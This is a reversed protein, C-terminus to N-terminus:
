PISYCGKTMVNRGGKSGLLALRLENESGGQNTEYNISQEWGLVGTKEGEKAEARVSAWKERRRRKRRRIRGLCYLRTAERKEGQPKAETVKWGATQVTSNAM